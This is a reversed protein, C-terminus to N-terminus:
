AVLGRIAAIFRMDAAKGDDEGYAYIRMRRRPEAMSDPGLADALRAEIDSLDAQVRYCGGLSPYLADADGQLGAPLVALMPRDAYLYDIMTSSIDTVLIDAMAYVTNADDARHILDVNCVKVMAAIAAEHTEWDPDKWILPHPKFLLRAMPAAKRIASLIAPARDVSSLRTDGHSGFWTPMYAIVPATKWDVRAGVNRGKVQPRGVHTFVHDPVTVGNMAYRDQGLQGAVFIRDFNRTVPSFSTPKDSDGHLMQVHTLDPFRRLLEINRHGNNVYLVAKVDSAMAQRLHEANPAWVGKVGRKRLVELHRRERCIAYWPIGADDLHASWMLLHLPTDMYDAALHVAIASGAVDKMDEHLLDVAEPEPNRPMFKLFKGFM